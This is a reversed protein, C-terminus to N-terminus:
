DSFRLSPCNLSITEWQVTLCTPMRTSDLQIRVFKDSITQKLSKLPSEMSILAPATVNIFYWRGIQYYYTLNSQIWNKLFLNMVTGILALHCFTGSFISDLNPIPFRHSLQFLQSKLILQNFITSQFSFKALPSKLILEDLRRNSSWIASDQWWLPNIDCKHIPLMNWGKDGLLHYRLWIM